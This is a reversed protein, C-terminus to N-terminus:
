LYRATLSMWIVLAAMVSCMGLAMRSCLVVDSEVVQGSVRARRVRWLVAIALIAAALELGMGLAGFAVFSVWGLVTIGIALYSWSRLFTGESTDVRTM